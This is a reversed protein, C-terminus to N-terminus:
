ICRSSPTRYSKLTLDARLAFKPWETEEVQVRGTGVAESGVGESGGM